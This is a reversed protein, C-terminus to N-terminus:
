EDEDGDEAEYAVGDRFLYSHAYSTWSDAYLTSLVACLVLDTVDHTGVDPIHWPLEEGNLWTRGKILGDAERPNDLSWLTEFVDGTDRFTARTRKTFGNAELIECEVARLQWDHSEVKVGVAQKPDRM